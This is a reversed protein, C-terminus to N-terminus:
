GKSYSWLIARLKSGTEPTYLGVHGSTSVSSVPLLHKLRPHSVRENLLTLNPRRLPNINFLVININDLGRSGDKNLLKNTNTNFRNNLTQIHKCLSKMSFLINAM